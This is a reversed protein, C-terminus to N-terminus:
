PDSLYIIKHQQENMDFKLEENEQNDLPALLTIESKSRQNSRLLLKSIIQDEENNNKYNLLSFSFHKEKIMKSSFVSDENRYFHFDVEFSHSTLHFIEFHKFKNGFISLGIGKHSFDSNLMMPGFTRLNFGEPLDIISFSNM